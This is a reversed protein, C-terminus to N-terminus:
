KIQLNQNESLEAGPISKGEKLAEKIESKLIKDPQAEKFEKPILDENTINVATSKRFSIVCRPTEFKTKGNQVMYNNLFAKLRDAQNEKTKQRQYLKDKEDKIAQAESLLSKVYCGINDVKENEFMSLQSIAEFVGDPMEGNEDVMNLLNEIEYNIEYLKM